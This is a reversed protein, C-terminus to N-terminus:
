VAMKMAITKHPNYGELTFDSFQFDEIDSVRPNIHLTQLRLVGLVKLIICSEVRETCGHKLAVPCSTEFRV